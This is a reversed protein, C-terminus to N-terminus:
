NARRVKRIRGYRRLKPALKPHSKPHIEVFPNEGRLLCRLIKTLNPESM